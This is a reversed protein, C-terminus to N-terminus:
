LTRVIRALDDEIEQVTLSVMGNPAQDSWGDELRQAYPLNNTVFITDGFKAPGLAKLARNSEESSVPDGASAPADEDDDEGSGPDFTSLDVENVGIRWSGRFRGTDVPSRLLVGSFADFALKRLVVDAKIKTKEVFRTVDTSFSM